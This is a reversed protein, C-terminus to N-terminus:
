RKESKWAAQADEGEGESRVGSWSEGETRERCTGGAKGGGFVGFTVLVRWSFCLLIAM